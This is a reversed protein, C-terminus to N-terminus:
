KEEALRGMLLGRPKRSDTLQEAFTPRADRCATAETAWRSFSVNVKLQVDSHLDVAPLADEVGGNLLHLVLVNGQPPINVNETSVVM